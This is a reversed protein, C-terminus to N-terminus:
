RFKTGRIQTQQLYQMLGAIMRGIETTQALLSQSVQSSVYGQDSALYLQARLEGCSGRALSLFQLFEKNGGREYGEAINSIVSVAARRVQDRLAFDRAFNGTRTVQYVANALQRAKQWADIDEFRKFTAM